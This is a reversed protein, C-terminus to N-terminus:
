TAFAISKKYCFCFHSLSTPKFLHSQLAPMIIECEEGELLNKTKGVGGQQTFRLGGRLFPICHHETPISCGQDDSRERHPIRPVGGELSSVEDGDIM